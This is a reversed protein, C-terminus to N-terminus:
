RRKTEKNKMRLIVDKAIEAAKQAETTDSKWGFSFRVLGAARTDTGYYVRSPDGGPHYLVAM